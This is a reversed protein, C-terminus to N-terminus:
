SETVLAQSQEVRVAATATTTLDNFAGAQGGGAWTVNWTITARLTFSGNGSAHTYTHGCTPSSAAPDGGAPFPTGAGACVSTTGDGFDWSVSVPKATATVSEGPVSATASVPAFQKTPLWTWMPMGVLQPLGGGPSSSIVPTSLHLKKRAKAALAAPAPKMAPTPPLTARWVETTSTTPAIPAAGPLAVVPCTMLYWGGQKGTHQDATDSAPPKYSPDPAYTCPGTVV